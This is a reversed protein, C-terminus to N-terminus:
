LECKSLYDIGISQYDVYEEFPFPIIKTFQEISKKIMELNMNICTYGGQKKIDSRFESNLNYLSYSFSKSNMLNKPFMEKFEKFIDTLRQLPQYKQEIGSEINATTKAYYVILYVLYQQFSKEMLSQKLDTMPIKKSDWKSLDINALYHFFHKGVVLNYAHKFFHDFFESDNALKNDANFIVWRRDGPEVKVIHQSNNSCFIHRTYDNVFIKDKGKYEIKRTTQSIISKLQNFEKFQAGSSSLEDMCEFLCTEMNGNFKDIFEAWNNTYHYFQDGLVMKGIFDIFANKGVGQYLSVLVMGIPLKQEPYQILHALFNTLYTFCKPSHDVLIMMLDIVPKIKDQDVVFSPDYQHTFGPFINWSRSDNKSPDDRFYPTFHVNYVVRRKTSEFWVKSFPVLKKKGDEEDDINMVKIDAINDNFEKRSRVKFGTKYLDSLEFICNGNTYWFHYNNFYNIKEDMTKLQKFYSYEFHKSTPKSAELYKDPNTTRAYHELTGITISGNPKFSNWKKELGDEDYFQSRSSLNQLLDYRNEQKCFLGIKVWDLHELKDPDIINILTDIRSDGKIVNNVVQLKETKEMEFQEYCMDENMYTVLHYRVSEEYNVATKPVSDEKEGVSGILRFKSHNTRYVATDLHVQKFEPLRSLQKLDDVTTVYNHVVIHYSIKTSRNSESIAYDGNPFHKDLFELASDLYYQPQKTDQDVKLDLDFYPHIQKHDITIVEYAVPYCGEQIECELNSIDVTKYGNPSTEVSTCITIM